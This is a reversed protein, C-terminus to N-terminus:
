VIPSAAFLTSPEVPKTDPQGSLKQVQLWVKCTEQWRHQVPWCYHGGDNSSKREMWDLWM